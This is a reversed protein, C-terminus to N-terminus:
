SNIFQLVQQLIEDQSIYQNDKEVSLEMKKKIKSAKFAERFNHDEQQRSEASSSFSNGDDKSSLFEPSATLFLLYVNEKSDYNYKEELDMVWEEPHTQRYLNGYVFEGLHARNWVLLNMKGAHSFDEKSSFNNMLFTAKQFEREFSTEQFKRKEADSIVNPTSFHTIILNQCHPMLNKILTDKGCRDTGEIILHKM